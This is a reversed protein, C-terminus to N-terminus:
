PNNQNKSIFLSNLKFIAKNLSYKQLFTIVYHSDTGEKYYISPRSLNEPSMHSENTLLGLLSTMIIFLSQIM